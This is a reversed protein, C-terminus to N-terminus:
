TAETMVLQKHGQPSCGSLSRQGNSEGPLFVPTPQCKRRWPIMGVRPHLGHRRHRRCQCAPEKGSAGGPFGRIPHISVIFYTPCKALAQCLIIIWYILESFAIAVGSWYEQRSFGMSPPAQYTATWPTAFLRVHSFHNLLLLLPGSQGLCDCGQNVETRSVKHSVTLRLFVVIWFSNTKRPLQSKM